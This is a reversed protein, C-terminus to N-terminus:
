VINQTNHTPQTHDIFMHPMMMPPMTPQPQLEDLSPPPPAIATMPPELNYMHKLQDSNYRKLSGSPVFMGKQKFLDDINGIKNYEQNKAQNMINALATGVITMITIAYLLDSNAEGRSALGINVATLITTAILLLNTAIYCVIYVAYWFNRIVISQNLGTPNRAQHRYLLSNAYSHDLVAIESSSPNVESQWTFM